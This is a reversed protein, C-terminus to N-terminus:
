WRTALRAGLDGSGAYPEISLEAVEREENGTDLLVGTVGLLVLAGGAIFSVTSLMAADAADHSADVGRQTTCANGECFRDAVDADNKAKFGFAIGLGLGALGAAGTVIGAVQFGGLGRDAASPQPTTNVPRGARAATGPLGSVPAAAPVPQEAAIAELQLLENMRTNAVRLRNPDAGTDLTYRRYYEIALGRNKLKSDYIRALNYIIDASPAAELAKQYLAIAASYDRRSYATFAEAAYTEARAVDSGSSAAEEASAPAAAAAWTLGSALAIAHALVARADM